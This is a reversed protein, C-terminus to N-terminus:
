AEDEPYQLKQLRQLAPQVDNKMVSMLYSLIKVYDVSLEFREIAEHSTESIAGELTDKGVKNALSRIFVEACYIPEANSVLYEGHRQVAMDGSIWQDIRSKPM